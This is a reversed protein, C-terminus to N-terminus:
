KRTNPNFLRHNISGNSEKIFEFFGKKGGYEGPIKLMQRTVGDGGKITTIIGDSEFAKVSEPFGHFDCRKMQALVKNTYTAGEFFSKSETMAWRSAVAGAARGVAFSGTEMLAVEGAFGAAKQSNILPANNHEPANASGSSLFNYLAAAALLLLPHKGDQDVYRYPNNLGYAYTNLRQPNLLLKENAKSTKEDVARVPDPAVFRGTKADQYRADFYYLGTEDDKEKGVFKRDNAATGTVSNEEGFPKYDAKWVVAGSSDTMALPTGAPDTHYFFVQDAAFVQTAFVAFFILFSFRLFYRRM